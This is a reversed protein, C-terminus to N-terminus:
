FNKQYEVRAENLVYNYSPRVSSSDDLEYVGEFNPFVSLYDLGIKRGADITTDDIFSFARNRLPTLVFTNVGLDFLEEQSPIGGGDGDTLSALQNTLQNSLLNIIAGKNLSPTSTLAVASSDILSRDSSTVSFNGPSSPPSHRCRVSEGSDNRERGEEKDTKRVTM